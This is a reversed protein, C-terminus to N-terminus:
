EESAAKMLGAAVLADLLAKFESATVNAGAAEAVNEAQNNVFQEFDITGDKKAYGNEIDSETILAKYTVKYAEAM